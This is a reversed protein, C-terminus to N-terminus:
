AKDSPEANKQELAERLQREYIKKSDCFGMRTKGFSNPGASTPTDRGINKMRMKAEPPMEELDDEDDEDGFVAAASGVKPKMPLGATTAVKQNQGLKISISGLSKKASLSMGVELKGVDSKDLSKSLGFSIKKKPEEEEDGDAAPRKTSSTREVVSTEERRNM